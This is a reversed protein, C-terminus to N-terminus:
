ECSVCYLFHNFLFLLCRELRRSMIFSVFTVFIFVFVNSDQKLFCLDFCTSVQIQENPFIHIGSLISPRERQLVAGSTRERFELSGDRM